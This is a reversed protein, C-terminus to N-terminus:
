EVLDELLSLLFSDVIRDDMAEDLTQRGGDDMCKTTLNWWRDNFTTSIACIQDFNNKL